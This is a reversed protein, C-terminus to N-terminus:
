SETENPFLPGHLMLEELEADSQHFDESLTFKGKLAGLLPREGTKAVPVLRVAPQGNRAIVVEEGSEAKEILRSLHTKAHHVNVAM